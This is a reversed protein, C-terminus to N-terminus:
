ELTYETEYDSFGENTASYLSTSLVEDNIFEQVIATPTEYSAKSKLYSM